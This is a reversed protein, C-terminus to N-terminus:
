YGPRTPKKLPKHFGHSECNKYFSFFSCSFHVCLIFSGLLYPLLAILTLPIGPYSVAVGLLFFIVSCIANRLFRKLLRYNRYQYYYSILASHSEASEHDVVLVHSPAFLATGGCPIRKGINQAFEYFVWRDSNTGTEPSMIFYTSDNTRGRKFQFNSGSVSQLILGKQAMTHLWDETKLTQSLISRHSISISDLMMTSNDKMKFNSQKGYRNIHWNSIWPM